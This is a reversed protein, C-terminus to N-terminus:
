CYSFLLIFRMGDLEQCYVKGRHLDGSITMSGGEDNELVIMRAAWIACWVIVKQLHIPFEQLAHPDEGRLDSSKAQQLLTSTSTFRIVLSSTTISQM